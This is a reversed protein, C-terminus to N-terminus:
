TSDSCTQHGHHQGLQPEFNASPYGDEGCDLFVPFAHKLSASAGQSLIMTLVIGLGCLDLLPPKCTKRPTRARVADFIKWMIEGNMGFKGDANALQAIGLKAGPFFAV